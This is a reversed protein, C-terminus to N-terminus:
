RSCYEDFFSHADQAHHLAPHNKDPKKGKQIQKRGTM